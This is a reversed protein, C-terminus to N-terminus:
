STKRLEEAQVEIMSEKLLHKLRGLQNDLGEITSMLQNGMM